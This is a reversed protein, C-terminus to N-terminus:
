QQNQGGGGDGYGPETSQELELRGGGASEVEEKSGHKKAHSLGKNPLAADTGRRKGDRSLDLSKFFELNLMENLNKRFREPMPVSKNIYLFSYPDKTAYDVLEFFQRKTMGPPCFEQCLLEVESLPAAFFFINKAQLRCKRPVSTWSQSCIMTTMNYHRSAIFSKIFEDTKMFKPNSIVDDYIMMVQPANDSGKKKIKKKQASLIEGILEPAEELDTFVHDDSIGLKKQVDDGEATPSCLFRYDFIDKGDIRMGYFRESKALNTLLTSKGQGTTGNFISSTGLRPIIDKEALPHNRISDKSSKVKKIALTFKGKGRKRKKGHGGDSESDSDFIGSKSDDCSANRTNRAAKCEEDLKKESDKHSAPLVFGGSLQSAYKSRRSRSM